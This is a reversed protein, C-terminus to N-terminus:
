RNIKRLRHHTDLLAREFTLREAAARLDAHEDKRLNKLHQIRSEFDHLAFKDAVEGASLEKGFRLRAETQM